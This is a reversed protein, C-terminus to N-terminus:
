AGELLMPMILIVQTSHIDEDRLLVARSPDSFLFVVNETNVSPLLSVLASSKLGIKFGDPCNCDGVIAVSEQADTAFDLDQATLKLCGGVYSLEILNTSESGFLSVRKLAQLLDRVCVTVKKDNDKPIVSEYNPYKAEPMTAIIEVDCPRKMADEKNEGSRMVTATLRVHNGNGEINVSAAGRMSQDLTSFLKRHFLLMQAKGTLFGAGVGVDYRRKFLKHGDSGVITLGEVDIDMAICSMQVRLDDNGVCVGAARVASLFWEGDVSCRTYNEGEAIAPPMPYEAAEALPLTCSGGMQDANEGEVPRRNIVYSVRLRMQEMDIELIIPQDAAIDSIFKQLNMVRCLAVQTLGDNITDMTIRQRIWHESDSAILYYENDKQGKQLIVNGLIPMANKANIIRTVKALNKSLEGCNVRLKIISNQM